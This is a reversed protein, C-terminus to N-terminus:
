KKEELPVPMLRLGRKVLSKCAPRQDPGDCLTAQQQTLKRTMFLKDVDQNLKQEAAQLNKFEQTQYLQANAEEIKKQYAAKAALQDIRDTQVEDNEEATLPAITVLAPKAPPEAPKQATLNVAFIIIVLLFLTPISYVTQEAVAISFRKM